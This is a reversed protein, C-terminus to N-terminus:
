HSTLSPRPAPGRISGLAGQERAPRPSARLRPFSSRPARRAQAQWLTGTASQQTRPARHSPAPGEGLRALAGPARALAWAPGRAPPRNHQPDPLAWPVGGGGGVRPCSFSLGARAQRLSIGTPGIM